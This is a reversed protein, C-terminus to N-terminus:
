MQFTNKTTNYVQIHLNGAATAPHDLHINRILLSTTSEAVTWQHSFIILSLFLWTYLPANMYDTPVFSSYASHYSQQQVHKLKLSNETVDTLMVWREWWPLQYAPQATLAVGCDLWVGLWDGTHRHNWNSFFIYIEIINLALFSAIHTLTRWWRGSPKMIWMSNM